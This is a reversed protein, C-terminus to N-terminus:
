VYLFLFEHTLFKNFNTLVCFISHLSKKKFCLHQFYSNNFDSGVRSGSKASRSSNTKVRWTLSIFGFLGATNHFRHSNTHKVGVTVTTLGLHQKKSRRERGHIFTNTTVQEIAANHESQHFLARPVPYRGFSFVPTPKQLLPYEACNM